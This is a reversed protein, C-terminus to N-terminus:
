LPPSSPRWAQGSRLIPQKKRFRGSRDPEVLVFDGAPHLAFDNAAGIVREDIPLIGVLDEDSVFGYGDSEERWAHKPFVVRDHERAQMPYRAGSSLIRGPGAQVVWGDFVPSQARDPLLLGSPTEKRAALLEVFYRSHLVRIM